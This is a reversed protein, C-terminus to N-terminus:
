MVHPIVVSQTCCCFPFALWRKNLWVDSMQSVTFIIGRKESCNKKKSQFIYNNKM